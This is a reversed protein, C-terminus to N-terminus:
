AISRIVRRKIAESCRGTVTPVKKEKPWEVYSGLINQRGHGLCSKQGRTKKEGEEKDSELRKWLMTIMVDIATAAVADATLLLNPANLLTPPMMPVEIDAAKRIM